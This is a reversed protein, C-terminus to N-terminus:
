VFFDARQELPKDVTVIMRAKMAANTVTCEALFKMAAVFRDECLGISLQM